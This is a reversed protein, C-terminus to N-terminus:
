AEDPMGIRLGLSVGKGTAVLAGQAPAPGGASFPYALPTGGNYLETVDGATLAANFIALEDINGNAELTGGKLVTFDQTTDNSGSSSQTSILSNDVYLKIQSNSFDLVGVVHHWNTTDGSGGAAFDQTAPSKLLSFAWGSGSLFGLFFEGNTFGNDGKGVYVQNGGTSALKIWCSISYNRAGMSLDANDAHSFYRNEVLNQRANNLAGSLTGPGNNATLHYANATSDNANGSTEDFKYYAVPAPLSM